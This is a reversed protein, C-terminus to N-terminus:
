PNRYTMGCIWSTSTVNLLHSSPHVALDGGDVGLTKLVCFLFAYLFTLNMEHFIGTPIAEIMPLPNRCAMGYRRRIITLSSFITARILKLHAYRPRMILSEFVTEEVGKTM